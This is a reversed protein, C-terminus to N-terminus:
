PAPFTGEINLNGDSISINDINIGLINGFFDEVGDEVYPNLQSSIFGPITVKGIKTNNISSLNNEGDINLETYLPVEDPLKGVSAEITATDAGFAQAMNEVNVIASLLLNDKDDIKVQVNKITNENKQMKSILYAVEKSNLEINMSKRKKLDERKYEEIDYGLKEIMTNKDLMTEDTEELQIQRNIGLIKSLGSDKFLGATGNKVFWFVIGGVIIILSFIVISVVKLVKRKKSIFGARQIVM